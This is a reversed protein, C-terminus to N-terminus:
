RHVKIIGKAVAFDYLKKQLMKRARSLRSRVTGVPCDMIEAIEQYSFGEIDSLIVVMRYEFPLSDLAKKVDDELLEDYMHEHDIQTLDYEPEHEKDPYFKEVDDFNVQVPMRSRKRFDNIFTNRMVKFLWAKCNTGKKFKDFYKFAKMYTDQVLDEADARNGIMQVASNFLLDIHQLAEREFDARKRAIKDNNEATM